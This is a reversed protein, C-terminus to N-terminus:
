VGFPEDPLSSRLVKGNEDIGRWDRVLTWRFMLDVVYDAAAEVTDFTLGNGCWKGSNDAIVEARYKM